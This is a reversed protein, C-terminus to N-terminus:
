IPTADVKVTRRQTKKEQQEENSNHQEIIAMHQLLHKANARKSPNRVMTRLRKKANQIHTKYYCRIRDRLAKDVFCDAFKWKNTAAVEKIVLVMDNNFSQQQASQCKTTSLEYYEAMHKKLVEEIVHGAGPLVDPSSRPNERVLAMSLLLRKALMPDTIAREALVAARKAAEQVEKADETKKTSKSQTAKKAISAAKANRKATDSTKRKKTSGSTPLPIKRKSLSTRAKRPSTRTPSLSAAARAKHGVYYCDEEMNPDPDLLSARRWTRAEEGEESVEQETIKAVADLLSGFGESERVPTDTIDMEMRPKGESAIVEKKASFSALDPAGSNASRSMMSSTGYSSRKPTSPGAAVAPLKEDEESEEEQTSSLLGIRKALSLSTESKESLQLHDKDEDSYYSLEQSLMSQSGAVENLEGDRDLQHIHQDTQSLPMAEYVDDDKKNIDESSAKKLSGAMANDNIVSLHNEDETDLDEAHPDPSSAETRPTTTSEKRVSAAFGAPKKIESPTEQMAANVDKGSGGAAAAPSM